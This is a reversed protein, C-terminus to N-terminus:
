LNAVLDPSSLSPIRAVINGYKGNIYQLLGERTLDVWYPIEIYGVGAKKCAERKKEDEKIQDQLSKEGNGHLRPVREYHQLGYFEVALRLSEWYGDIKQKEKSGTKLWSPTVDRDAQSVLIEELLYICLKKLLHREPGEKKGYKQLCWEMLVKLNEPNTLTYDLGVSMRYRGQGWVSHLFADEPIRFRASIESRKFRPHRGRIGSGASPQTLAQISLSRPFFDLSNNCGLIQFQIYPRNSYTDIKLIEQGNYKRVLERMVCLVEDRRM